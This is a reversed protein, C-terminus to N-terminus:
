GLFCFTCYNYSLPMADLLLKGGLKKAGQSHCEYCQKVLVPRIKSEFFARQDPTMDAARAAIVSVLLILGTLRAQM